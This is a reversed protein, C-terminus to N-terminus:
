LFNLIKKVLDTFLCRLWSLYEALMILFKTKFEEDLELYDYLDLLLNRNIKKQYTNIETFLKAQLLIDAEIATVVM